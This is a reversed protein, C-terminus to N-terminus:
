GFEKTPGVYICVVSLSLSPSIQAAQKGRWVTQQQSLALSEHEVLAWPLGASLRCRGLVCTWGFGDRVGGCLIMCTHEDLSLALNYVIIMHDTFWCKDPQPTILWKASELAPHVADAPLSETPPHAASSVRVCEPLIVAMQFSGSHVTCCWFMVSAIVIIQQIDNTKHAPGQCLSM